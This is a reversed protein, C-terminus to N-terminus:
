KKNRYPELKELFRPDVQAGLAIVRDCHRIAQDYDKRQFYFVALNFHAQEFDPNIEVCKNWMRIAQDINGSQAYVAALNNVAEIHDPAFLISKKLMQEYKDQQGSNYYNQGMSFYINGLNHYACALGPNLKIAQLYEEEAAKNDGLKAYVLGLNNHVRSSFPSFQLTRKYLSLESRWYTNQRVTLYSYDFILLAFLGLAVFRSKDKEYLTFFLWGLIMFYGISPLYLWHESMYSNIPYLNGAPLLMLLFWAAGFFFLRNNKRNRLAYVSLGLIIGAGLIVKPTFFSFLKNGYEMHLNFPLLLIRSYDTMAAFFGPLRQILTTRAPTDYFVTSIFIFRFVLYLGSVGILPLLWKMELKKGFAYHYLIFLVPIILASERSLLAFIFALFMMVWFSIKPSHLFKLYFAFCILLFLGTLPDSRGAVYAVAETHVPHSVFLLAAFLSLVRQNFLLNLLWYLSLATLIHLLVSSLHYGTPNLKWLSYDLAYSVLQLPRYVTSQEGSGARSNETFFKPLSSWNRIYVNDRVLAADDWVFDAGLTNFYISCGLIVILAIFIVSQFRGSLKAPM